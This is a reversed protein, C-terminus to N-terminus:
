LGPVGRSLYDDPRQEDHVRGPKTVAVFGQGLLYTSIQDEVKLSEAPTFGTVDVRGSPGPAADWPCGTLALFTLAAVAQRLLM